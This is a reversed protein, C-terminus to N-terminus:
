NFSPIGAQKFYKVSTNNEMQDCASVFYATEIVDYFFSSHAASLKKSDVAFYTNWIVHLITPGYYKKVNYISSNHIEQMIDIPRVGLKNMCINDLIKKAKEFNKGNQAIDMYKKYNRGLTQVQQHLKHFKENLNGWHVDSM